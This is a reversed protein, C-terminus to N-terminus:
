TLATVAVAQHDVSQLVHRRRVEPLDLAAKRPAVLLDLVVARRDTRDALGPNGSSPYWKMGFETQRVDRVV